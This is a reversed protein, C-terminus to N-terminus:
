GSSKPPTFNENIKSSSGLSTIFMINESIKAPVGILMAIEM